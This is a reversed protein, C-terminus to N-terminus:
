SNLLAKLLDSVDTLSLKTKGSIGAADLTRQDMPTNNLCIRLAASIDNLNFVGNNDIDGKVIAAGKHTFTLCTWGSYVEVGGQKSVTRVGYYYPIDKTIPSLVNGSTENSKCDFIQWTNKFDANEFLGIQYGDAGSVADWSVNVKNDAVSEVKFNKPAPPAVTSSGPTIGVGTTMDNDVTTYKGSTVNFVSPDLGRGDPLTANMMRHYFEYWGREQLINLNYKEVYNRGDDASPTKDGNIAKSRYELCHLMEHVVTAPGFSSNQFQGKRYCNIQVFTTGKYALPSPTGNIIAASTIGAWGGALDGFPAFVVIQNYHKQALYPDLVKSLTESGTVDICYGSVGGAQADTFDKATLTVNNAVFCDVPNATMKNESLEKLAQPLPDLSYQKIEKVDDQDISAKHHVTQGNMTVTADINPIIVALINWNNTLEAKELKVDSFWATGKCSGSFMGNQLCLNITTENKTTFKYEVLAWENSTTFDSYNDYSFVISGSDNYHSAEGICAGSANLKATPNLQYGSYKVMATFKYETHPEVNYTREVYSLNYDTNELKISYWSDATHVNTDVSFNTKGYFDCGLRDSLNKASVDKSWKYNIATASASACVSLATVAAVALSLLRSTIKGLKKM